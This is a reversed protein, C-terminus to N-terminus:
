FTISQLKKKNKLIISGRETRVYGENQFYKLMRSVVERASGMHKAIDEHTMYITDSKEISSQELLFMALRKDFSMFLIQEMIWMVDSFRTLTVKNTFKQVEINKQSIESYIDTPILIIESDKEAEIYIEFNMNNLVCSASMICIEDHFLRYLTVEKGNDSLIYTRLQGKKVIILGRCDDLGDYVSKGKAYTILQSKSVIQKQETPTLSNWFELKNSIFDVDKNNIM